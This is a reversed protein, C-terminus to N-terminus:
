ISKFKGRASAKIIRNQTWHERYWSSAPFDDNLEIMKARMMERFRQVENKHAPDNVLNNQQYPDKKNDYFVEKRPLNDRGGGRFVGYTYKPSRMARWEHGNEWVACAGTNMLFAAEPEEPCKKGLAANALSVGEVEDPIETKLGALDLVTPMIDVTNMCVDTDVPKTQCKWYVLFPVRAAEEYFINKKMRGHGGFMEGHDSTFVVITNELLGQDKLSSMIRGINWDLNATMAYYCRMWNQLKEPNQDVNSWGDGYPDKKQSYNKPPDFEVDKYMDMYEDPVNNPRWPDHPTGYSVTLYFPKRSGSQKKIYDIAMDTQADPEFKNNEYHIKEKSETHYYAAGGYYDHHFNYAAWYGDFGLRHKGRPVFSNDPNYHDGLENAYLHWKGIYGTNYGADTAAHGICRHNPNMRLENIVMGTSSTYKGTFLSARYASCVPMSSVAQRYNAGERAIKDINPTHAKDDGAYGCSAYRLQDAFLFVINPRNEPMAYGFNAAAAAAVTASTRQLFKRRSIKNM